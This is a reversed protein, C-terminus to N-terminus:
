PWEHVTVGDLLLPVGPRLGSAQKAYYAVGAERCQDRLDVAWAVDFPRRNPGSEAGVITWDLANYRPDSDPIPEWMGDHWLGDYDPQLWERLDVPALCPEVSVFRVAAPTDLLVPIREDATAQDEVSVGLWVHPPLPGHVMYAWEGLYDRMREARKTLLQWTVDTRECLTQLVLAVFVSPVDEHFLDGTDAIFAMPKYPAGRKPSYRETHGAADKIPKGFRMTALRALKGQHPTVISHDRGFREYIARAYCHDCGRSVPTCGSVINLNGGSYDCWGIASPKM